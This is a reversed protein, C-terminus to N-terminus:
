GGSNKIIQSILRQTLNLSDDLFHRSNRRGKRIVNDDIEAFILEENMFSAKAVVEGFPNIVQSGGSFQVGDEVGVRNIYISYLSLLRSFTKQHEQNIKDLNELNHNTGIRMPSATLSFITKAGQHALLYPLNIHWADECILVGIKGLNKNQQVHLNKGASFHRGEEFMGYTPLYIKRHISKVNGNEFYFASNYLGFEDSEEVSGLLISIKESAKKIPNLIKSDNLNIAVEGVLDKISYGSLSLEPFVILKAKKSIAEKIFKLHHSVNKEVDGLVSDIQALAIKTKM